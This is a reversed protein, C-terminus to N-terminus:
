ESEKLNELMKDIDFDGTDEQKEGPLSAPAAGPARRAALKPLTGHAARMELDSIREKLRQNELEAIKLAKGRKLYTENMKTMEAIQTARVRELEKIYHDQKSEMEQMYHLEGDEKERSLNQLSEQLNKLQGAVVDREKSLVLSEEQLRNREEAAADLDSMLDINQQTMLEKKSQLLAARREADQLKESWGSAETRAQEDFERLLREEDVKMANLKETLVASEKERARLRQPVQLILLLSVAFLLLSMVLLRKELRAPRMM